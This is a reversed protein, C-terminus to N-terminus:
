YVVAALSHQALGSFGPVRGPTLFVHSELVKWAPGGAKDVQTSAQDGGNIGHGGRMVKDERCTVHWCVGTEEHEIM